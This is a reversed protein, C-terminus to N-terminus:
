SLRVKIGNNDSTDIWADGIQVQVPFTGAGQPIDLTLAQVILAGLSADTGDEIGGAKVRNGGISEIYDIPEVYDILTSGENVITRNWDVESNTPRAIVIYLWTANISTASVTKPLTANTHSGNNQVLNDADNYFASYGASDITFNGFTYDQNNTVPIKLMVWGAGAFKQGNSAVFEDYVLYSDKALNPSLELVIDDVSLSFPRYFKTGNTESALYYYEGANSPDTLPDVKFGTFDSPIPTVAQADALTEYVKVGDFNISDLETKTAYHAPLQGGLRDSDTATATADLKNNLVWVGNVVEWFAGSNDSHYARTHEPYLRNGDPDLATATPLFSPASYKTPLINYTSDALNNVAYKIQNMDDDVVNNKRDGQLAIINEKDTYTVKRSM